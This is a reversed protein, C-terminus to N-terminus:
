VTNGLHRATKRRAPLMLVFLLRISRYAFFFLATYFLDGLLTNRFFPIGMQYSRMLGSFTREYMSSTAWVGFNTVLFFLISGAISTMGTKVLSIRNKLFTGMLAIAIFSGYVFPMTAHFGLFFDSIFLAVVPIIFGWRNPIMAGSFLALAAIPAVNPSHPLLRLVIAMCVIAIIALYAELNHKKM